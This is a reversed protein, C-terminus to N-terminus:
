YENHHFTKNDFDPYNRERKGQFIYVAGDLARVYEEGEYLVPVPEPFNVMSRAGGIADLQFYDVKREQEVGDKIVKMTSM